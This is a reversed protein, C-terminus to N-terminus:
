LRLIRLLRTVMLQRQKVPWLIGKEKCYAEFTFRHGFRTSKRHYAFVRSGKVVDKFIQCRRSFPNARSKTKTKPPAAIRWLSTDRCTEVPAYAQAHAGIGAAYPKGVTPARKRAVV